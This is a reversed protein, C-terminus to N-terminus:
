LRDGYVGADAGFDLAAGIRRIDEAGQRGFVQLGDRSVAVSGM